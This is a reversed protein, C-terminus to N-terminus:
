NVFTYYLFNMGIQLLLFHIVFLLFMLKLYLFILTLYKFIGIQRCQSVMATFTVIICELISQWEM